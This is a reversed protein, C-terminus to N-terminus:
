HIKDFMKLPLPPAALDFLSSRVETLEESLKKQPSSHPANDEEQLTLSSLPGETVEGEVQHVVFGESLADLLGESMM